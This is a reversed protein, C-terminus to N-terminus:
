LAEAMEHHALDHCNECLLQCKAAEALIEHWDGLAVLYAVDVTKQLPDKHHWHLIGPDNRYGCRECGELVKLWGMVRRAMAGIHFRAAVAEARQHRKVARCAECFQKGPATPQCCARCPASYRRIAPPCRHPTM